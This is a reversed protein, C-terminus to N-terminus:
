VSNNSISSIIQMSISKANFLRCLNIHWLVFLRVLWGVLWSTIFYSHAFFESSVVTCYIYIYINLTYADFLVLRISINNFAIVWDRLDQNKKKNDRTTIKNIFIWKSLLIWKTQIIKLKFSNFEPSLLFLFWKRFCFDNLLFKNWVLFYLFCVLKQTINKKLRRYVCCLRCM